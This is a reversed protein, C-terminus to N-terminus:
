SNQQILRKSENGNSDIRLEYIKYTKNLPNLFSVNLALSESNSKWQDIWVHELTANSWFEPDSYPDFHQAKLRKQYVIRYVVKVNIDAMFVRHIHRTNSFQDSSNNLNLGSENSSFNKISVKFTNEIISDTKVETYTEPFYNILDIKNINQNFESIANNLREKKTESYSCSWLFLASILTLVIAIQRM